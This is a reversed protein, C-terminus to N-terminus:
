PDSWVASQSSTPDAQTLQDLGSSVWRAPDGAVPAMTLSCWLLLPRWWSAEAPTLRRHSEYGELLTAHVRAPVPGWDHFRTGLLVASRALETVRHDIRAEEFDIVAVIRSGAVLINASRYDGHLLQTPLDGQAADSTLRRLGDLAEAPIHDPGSDLWDNIQRSLPEPPATLGPIEEPYATLAGHLRGLVLGAERVEATQTTDLHHGVIQRQLSLSAGDVVVQLSGDVAAVPHSTPLGRRTLWGTLRALAAQRPFLDVAVSWKLVMPGAPTTVWALANHSSMVIRECGDVALGWYAHLSCAVWTAAADADRHGFRTSLVERPDTTEWLM